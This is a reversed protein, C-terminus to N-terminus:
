NFKKRPAVHQKRIQLSIREGGAPVVKRDLNGINSRSRLFERTAIPENVDDHNTRKELRGNDKWYHWEGAPKGMNYQGHISKQGNEHWWSWSGHPQDDKFTGQVAKQTNKHWWTFEGARVNDQFLGESQKQGSTYWSTLKGHRIPEGAEKYSAPKCAWWDDPSEIEVREHLFMGEWMVAGNEYLKQKSALKRGSQYTDDAIVDDKESWEKYAGDLMGRKYQIQKYPSGSTFNWSSEGHLLGDEYNWESCTRGEKDVISWKGHLKGDKFEASSTFPGEFSSYPPNNLLAAAGFEYQRTWPGIRKNNEFKGGAVENSERDFMTWSGHNVYNGNLDLTVERRVKVRGDEFKEEVTEVPANPDIAAEREQSVPLEKSSDSISPPPIVDTEPLPDQQPAPLPTEQPLPQIRAPPPFQQQPLVRAIRREKPKIPSAQQSLGIGTGLVFVVLTFKTVTSQNLM